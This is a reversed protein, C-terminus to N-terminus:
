RRKYLDDDYRDVHDRVCSMWFQCGERYTESDKIKRGFYASRDLLRREYWFHDNNVTDPRDAWARRLISLTARREISTECRLAINPPRANTDDCGALVAVIALLAASLIKRM